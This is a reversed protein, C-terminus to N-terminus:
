FAHTANRIKDIFFDRKALTLAMDRRIRRPELSYLQNIESLACTRLYARKMQRTIVLTPSPLTPIPTAVPKNDPGYLM